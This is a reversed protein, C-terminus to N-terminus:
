WLSSMAVCVFTLLCVYLVTLVCTYLVCVVSPVRTYLVCVATPVRTYLVCVVTPVHTYLVCVVTVVCTYLVCVVTVVLTYLVCLCHNKMNPQNGEVLCMIACLWNRDESSCIGVTKIHTCIPTVTCLTQPQSKQFILWIHEWLVLRFIAVNPPDM